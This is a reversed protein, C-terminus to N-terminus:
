FEDPAASELLIRMLTLWDCDYLELQIAPLYCVKMGTLCVRVRHLSENNKDTKFRYHTRSRSQAVGM